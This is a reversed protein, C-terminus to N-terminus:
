TLYEQLANVYYKIKINVQVVIKFLAKETAFSLLKIFL